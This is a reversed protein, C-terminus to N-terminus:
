RDDAAIPMPFGSTNKGVYLPSKGNNDKLWKEYGEIEPGGLNIALEEGFIALVFYWESSPTVRCAARRISPAPTNRREIVSTM